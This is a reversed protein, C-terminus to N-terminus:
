GLVETSPLHPTGLTDPARKLPSRSLPKLWQGPSPKLRLTPLGNFRGTFYIEGIVGAQLGPSSFLHVVASVAQYRGPCARQASREPIIWALWRM